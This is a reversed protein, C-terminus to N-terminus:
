GAGLGGDGQLGVGQGDHGQGFVGVRLRGQGAASQGRVGSCVRWSRAPRSRALSASRLGRGCAAGLVSRAVRAGREDAGRHRALFPQRKGKERGVLEGMVPAMLPRNFVNDNRGRGRAKDQGIFGCGFGEREM